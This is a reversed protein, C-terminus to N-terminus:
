TPLPFAELQLVINTVSIETFKHFILRFLAADLLVFLIKALRKRDYPTRRKLHEDRLPNEESTFDRLFVIIVHQLIQTSHM